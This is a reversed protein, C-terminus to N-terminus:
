IRMYFKRRLSVKTAIKEMIVPQQVTVSALEMGLKLVLVMIRVPIWTVPILAHVSELGMDQVITVM